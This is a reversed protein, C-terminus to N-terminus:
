NEEKRRRKSKPENQEKIEEDNNDGEIGEVKELTEWVEEEANEQKPEVIGEQSFLLVNVRQKVYVKKVAKTQFNFLRLFRDLGSIACFPLTQHCVVARQAGVSDKLSGVIRGNRLDCVLVRGTTDSLVVKKGDCTPSSAILPYEQSVKVSFIPRRKVKTDYLRLEGYKTVLAIKTPDNPLFDLDNIFIPPPLRLNDLPLNRSKWTVKQTNIDWIKLDNKQGGTAFQEFNTKEMKLKSVWGNTKFSIKEDDGRLNGITIQGNKTCLIIRDKFSHLSCLSDKHFSFKELTETEDTAVKWIKCEGKSAILIEEEAQNIWSIAEIPTNPQITGWSKFLEPPKKELFNYIKV